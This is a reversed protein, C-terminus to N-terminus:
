LPFFKASRFPITPYRCFCDLAISPQHTRARLRDTFGGASDEREEGRRLRM